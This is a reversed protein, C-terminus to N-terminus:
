HNINEIHMKKSRCPWAKNGLRDVSLSRGEVEFMQSCIAVVTWFQHSFVRVVLRSIKKFNITCVKLEIFSVHFQQRKQLRLIATRSIQYMSLWRKEKHKYSANSLPTRPQNFNYVTAYRDTRFANRRDQLCLALGKLAKTQFRWKSAKFICLPIDHWYTRKQGPQFRWKSAKLNCM